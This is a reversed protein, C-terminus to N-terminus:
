DVSQKSIMVFLLHFEEREDVDVEAHFRVRESGSDFQSVQQELPM